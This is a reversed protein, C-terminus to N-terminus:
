NEFEIGEKVYLAGIGKPGNLKHGSMSLMDIGLEKVNILVNGCAQVADTHFIIGHKHAIESIEKIPEVTGIENNAFM